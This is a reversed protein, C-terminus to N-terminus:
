SLSKLSRFFLIIQIKRLLHIQVHTGYINTIAPIFHDSILMINEKTDCSKSLKERRWGSKLSHVGDQENAIGLM